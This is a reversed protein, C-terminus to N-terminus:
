VMGRMFCSCSFTKQVKTAFKGCNIMYSNPPLGHRIKTLYHLFRTHAISTLVELIQTQSWLILRCNVHFNNSVYSQCQKSVDVKSGTILKHSLTKWQDHWSEVKLYEKLKQFTIHKIM